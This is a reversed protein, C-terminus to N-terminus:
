VACGYRTVGTAPPADQAVRAFVPEAPPLPSPACQAAIRAATDPIFPALEVALVRCAGIVAALVADLGAAATADAHEAKALLWPASLEIYQNAADVIQWVAATAARFDFGDLAARV